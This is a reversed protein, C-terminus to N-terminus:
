QYYFSRKRPIRFLMDHIQRLSAVDRAFDFLASKVTTSAFQQLRECVTMKEKCYGVSAVMFNPIAANTRITAVVADGETANVAPDEKTPPALCTPAVRPPADDDLM